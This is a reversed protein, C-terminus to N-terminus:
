GHRHPLNNGPARKPIACWMPPACRKAMSFWRCKSAPIPPTPQTSRNSTATRWGLVDVCLRLVSPIHDLPERAGEPTLLDIFQSQEQRININVQVQAALLAPPNVVMGVPQVYGLWELHARTEFDKAM